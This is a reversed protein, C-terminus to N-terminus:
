GDAPVQLFWAVAVRVGVLWVAPGNPKLTNYYSQFRCRVLASTQNKTFYSLTIHLIQLIIKRNDTFIIYSNLFGYYMYIQIDPIYSKPVM